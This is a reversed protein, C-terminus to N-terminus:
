VYTLSARDDWVQNFQPERGAAGAFATSTLKGTGDYSCKKILWKASSDTTGPEAQGVYEALGTATYAVRIVLLNGFSEHVVPTLNLPQPM